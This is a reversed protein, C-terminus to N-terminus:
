DKLLQAGYLAILTAEAVGDDMVRVFYSASGPFIKTAIDRAETKKAAKTEDEGRKISFCSKWVTPAVLEFPIVNGHLLGHVIGTNIGFQFQGAQRPRSSVLEVFGRKILNRHHDLWAAAIVGDVVTKSSGSVKVKKTPMRLVIVDKTDPNVLSFAGTIGPDVGLIYSLPKKM